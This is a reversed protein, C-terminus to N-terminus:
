AYAAPDTPDVWGYTYMNSNSNPYTSISQRIQALKNTRIMFQGGNWSGYTGENLNWMTWGSVSGDPSSADGTVAAASNMIMVGFIGRVRIGLPIHPMTAGIGQVYGGQYDLYAGNTWIVERDIMSFPLIHSSADTKFSMLRRWVTTGAPLHTPPLTTDYFVDPAGGIMAAYMHYWTNAAVAPAGTGMGGNGNGAAWAATTKKMGATLLIMQANDQSSGVWPSVNLTDNPSTTDNFIRGGTFYAPRVQQAFVQSAVPSWQSPNWSGPSINVLAIYPIGNYFCGVGAPYTAATSFPPFGLLDRPNNGSDFVGFQNDGFNIYPEGYLAGTPRKGATLSRLIQLVSGM